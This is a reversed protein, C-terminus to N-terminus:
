VLKRVLVLAEAYEMGVEIGRKNAYVEIARPSRPHPYPPIETQYTKSYALAAEVKRSLYPGIDVFVNPKFFWADFPPAWETSSAVEYCYVEKVSNDNVPRVAVLTAEFVVRHDQNVDGGYHTYIVAPKVERIVKVIPEILRLLPLSDLQQDPLGGFRLDDVGLVRCANIAAQKQLETQDHRATVGDSVTLVTVDDGHAIHKMITGGVGLTEDDPHAALVLVRTM